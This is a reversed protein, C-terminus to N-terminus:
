AVLEHVSEATEVAPEASRRPLFLVALV